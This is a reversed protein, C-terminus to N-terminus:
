ISLTSTVYIRDDDQIEYAKIILLEEYSNPNVEVDFGVQCTYSQFQPRKSLLLRNDSRVGDLMRMLENLKAERELHKVQAQM